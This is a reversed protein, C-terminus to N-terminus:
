IAKKLTEALCLEPTRTSIRASAKWSAPTDGAPGQLQVRQHKCLVLLVWSSTFGEKISGGSSKCM